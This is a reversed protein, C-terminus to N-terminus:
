HMGLFISVCSDLASPWRTSFQYEVESTCFWCHYEMTSREQSLENGRQRLLLEVGVLLEDFNGLSDDLTAIKGHFHTERVPSGGTEVGDDSGVPNEASCSVVYQLLKRTVLVSRRRRPEPIASVDHRELLGRAGQAFFMKVQVPLVAPHVVSGQDHM